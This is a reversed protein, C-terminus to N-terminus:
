CKMCCSELASGLGFVHLAILILRFFYPAVAKLDELGNLFTFWAVLMGQHVFTMNKILMQGKGNPRMKLKEDLSIGIKFTRIYSLATEKVM